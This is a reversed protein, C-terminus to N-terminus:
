STRCAFDKAQYVWKGLNPRIEWDGRVIRSQSMSGGAVHRLPLPSTKRRLRGRRGDEM